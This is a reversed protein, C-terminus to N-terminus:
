VISASDGTDVVPDSPNPWIDATRHSPFASNAGLTILGILVAVLLVLRSISRRM